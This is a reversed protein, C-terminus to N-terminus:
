GIRSVHRGERAPQTKEGLWGGLLALLVSAFMAILIGQLSPMRELWLVVFASDLLVMLGAAIAPEVITVGLSFFGVIWGTLLFSAAFVALTAVPGLDFLAKGLFILYASLTFGIIVSVFVWPWDVAKDDYAEDLTGQLLEGVWGGAMALTAAYLPSLLWVIIPIRVGLFASLVGATLIALIVGVIATERITEGPSRYGVLIGTLILTLTVLLATAAQEQLQPDVLYVFVGILVSGVVVGAVVWAWRIPETTPPEKGVAPDLDV